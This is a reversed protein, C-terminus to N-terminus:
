SLKRAFNKQNKQFFKELEPITEPIREIRVSQVQGSVSWGGVRPKSIEKTTKNATDVIRITDNFVEVKINKREEYSYFPYVGFWDQNIKSIIESQCEINAELDPKYPTYWPSDTLQSWHDRIFIGEYCIVVGFEPTGEKSFAALIKEKGTM